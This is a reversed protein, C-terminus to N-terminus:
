LVYKNLLSIRNNNYDINYEALLIGSNLETKFLVSLVTSDGGERIQCRINRSTSRYMNKNIKNLYEDNLNIIKTKMEQCDCSAAWEM